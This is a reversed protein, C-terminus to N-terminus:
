IHDFIFIAKMNVALKSLIPLNVWIWWFYYFSMIKIIRILKSSNYNWFQHFLLPFRYKMWKVGFWDTPIDSKLVMYNSIIALLISNFLIKLWSILIVMRLFDTFLVLLLLLGIDNLCVCEHHTINIIQTIHSYRVQLRHNTHFHIVTSLTEILLVAVMSIVFSTM